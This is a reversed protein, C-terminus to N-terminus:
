IRIMDIFLMSYTKYIQIEKVKKFSNLLKKTFNESYHNRYLFGALYFGLNYYNHKTFFPALADVLIKEDFTYDGDDFDITHIDSEIALRKNSKVGLNNLGEELIDDSDEVVLIDMDNIPNYKLKHQELKYSEIFENVSKPMDSDTLEVHHEKLLKILDLEKRNGNKEGTVTYRYDFVVYRGNKQYDINIPPQPLMPKKKSFLYIHYGGSGTKHVRTKGMIFSFAEEMKELPIEGKNDIDIVTLYGELDTIENCILATGWNEDNFEKYDKPNNSRDIEPTKLSQALEPTKNNDKWFSNEELFREPDLQYQNYYYAQRVAKLPTKLAFFKGYKKIDDITIYESNKEDKFSSSEIKLGNNNIKNDEVTSIM